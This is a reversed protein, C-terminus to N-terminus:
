LRDCTITSLAAVIRRELTPRRIPQTSSRVICDTLVANALNRPTSQCRASTLRHWNGAIHVYVALPKPRAQHLQRLDARCRFAAYAPEGRGVEVALRAPQEDAPALLRAAGHPDVADAVDERPPLSAVRGERRYHGAAMEVRLRGAAFEVAGVAHM